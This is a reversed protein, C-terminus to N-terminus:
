SRKNYIDAYRKIFEYDYNKGLKSYGSDWNISWTMLGKIKKGENKLRTLANIVDKPNEVYGNLGADPNAPLGFAFKDAPIKIFDSNGEIIDKSINYIFEEKKSQDNQSIFGVDKVYVGASGQNYFQPAIYDYYGELANIYPVYRGTDAKLDIFEPAMTIYFNKGLNLYHNKVIKVANPIVEANPQHELSSNEIDIDIGDFGYKDTLRIIENALKQDDGKNLKINSSAGGLSLLVLRGEDHLKHIQATFEEESMTEPRFTPFDEGPHTYMFSVVIIDYDRPIDKLEVTSPTGGQFGSNERPIWNQWYGIIISKDDEAKIKYVVKPKNYEQTLLYFLLLNYFNM